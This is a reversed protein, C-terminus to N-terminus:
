AFSPLSHTPAMTKHNHTSAWTKFNHTQIGASKVAHIYKWM